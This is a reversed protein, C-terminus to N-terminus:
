WTGSGRRSPGHPLARVRPRQAGAGRHRRAAPRHHRGHGARGLGGPRCPRARGAPEVGPRAAWPCWSGRWSPGTPSAWRCRTSRTAGGTAPSTSGRCRWCGARARTSTPPPTPGPRPCTRATSASPSSGPAGSPPCRWRSSCRSWASGPTRPGAIGPTSPPSGASSSVPSAWRSWHRPAAPQQAPQARARLPPLAGRVAAGVPSRFPEPFAGVGIATGSASSCRRLVHPSGLPHRRRPGARRAARRLQHRHAGPAGHVAAGPRAALPGRLRRRLLVLLRPRAGGRRGIGHVVHDAGARHGLPDASRQRWRRRLRGAVVAPHRAHPWRHAAPRRRGTPPHRRRAVLRGRPGVAHRRARRLLGLQREALACCTVVLAFVAPWRWGGREVARAM